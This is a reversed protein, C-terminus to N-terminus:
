NVLEVFRLQDLRRLARAQLWWDHYQWYREDANFYARLSRCDYYKACRTSASGLSGNPLLNATFGFLNVERCAVMAIVVAMMGTSPALPDLAFFHNRAWDVPHGGLQQAVSFILEQIAGVFQPNILAAHQLGGEQQCSGWWPHMCYLLYADAALDQRKGSRALHWPDMHGNANSAVRWTTRKGVHTTYKGAAPADNTRFVAQHGDICAGLRGGVLSGSSGVM